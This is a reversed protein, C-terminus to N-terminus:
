CRRRRNAWSVTSIASLSELKSTGLLREIAGGIILILWQIVRLYYLIGILSGLFIIVPLVQFAFITGHLQVVPGFLFSIGQNVYSVVNEVLNTVWNLAARGPAWLLVLVAFLVELLLSLLVTRWKIRRKNNSLLYALLLLVVIGVLGRLIDM